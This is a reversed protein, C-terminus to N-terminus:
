VREPLYQRLDSKDSKWNASREADGDYSERERTIPVVYSEIIEELLWLMDPDRVRKQLIKLLIDHDVSGFFKRIDCKLATCPRTGNRSVGRIMAQVRAVGKHTGKGVRCSFSDAIFTPEFIRNLVRFVAHHVVRDRVSARHIHRPKPDVIHFGHYPGHRYIRTKLERHLQFINQELEQEFRLVDSKRQKGIRFEEWCVFLHEPSILGSFLNAYTKM